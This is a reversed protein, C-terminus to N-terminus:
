PMGGIAQKVLFLLLGTAVLGALQGASALARVRLGVNM